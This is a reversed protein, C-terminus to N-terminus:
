AEVLQRYINSYESVMKEKSYVECARESIVSSDWNQKLMFSMRSSLMEVDGYDVFSSYDKLAISEPGGAKFGIVPTGCCLSEATVMSFTERKSLIVSLSSINYLDALEEQNRTRGFLEINQPLNDSISSYNSAVVFLVDPHRQALELLFHGGKNDNLDLSFSATVFLCIDKFGDFQPYNDIIVEKKKFIETDLGNLVTVIKFRNILPSQTARATLWPSVATVVVQETNFFSYSKNLKNWSYKSTDFLSKSISRARSCNHCGTDKWKDCSFAHSCTGTFMFEAHLTVVTKIRNTGLYQLLRFVDVTFGNICHIHVVDPTFAEIKKFLRSTSYSLYNGYMVGTIRSCIANIGREYEPCFRYYNDDELHDNAGYCVLSKHGSDSLVKTIDSVIKGTSGSVACVNVHLIRM